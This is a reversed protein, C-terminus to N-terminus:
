KELSMYGHHAMCIADSVNHNKGRYNYHKKAFALSLKKLEDTEMSEVDGLIVRWDRPQIAHRRRSAISKDKIIKAKSQARKTLSDKPYFFAKFLPFAAGGAESIAARSIHGGHQSREYYLHVHTLEPDTAKAALWADRINEFGACLDEEEEEDWLLVRGCWILDGNYIAALGGESSKAPDYGIVLLNVNNAQKKATKTKKPIINEEPTLSEGAMSRSMRKIEKRTLTLSSEPIRDLLNRLSDGPQNGEKTSSEMAPGEHGSPTGVSIKKQKKM